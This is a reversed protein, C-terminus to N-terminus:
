ELYSTKLREVDKETLGLTNHVYNEFSGYDRDITEFAALLYAAAVQMFGHLVEALREGKLLRALFLEWRHANLYYQNSLLYDEVVIEKSVGLIRLLVAAAFGTRDKGAACHFLVPCGNAALLERFFHRIEPTFRTALEVNAQRMYQVPDVTVIYKELEDRSNHWVRTSADLIPIPIVRIDTDRPLRDPEREREHNARFDIIRDLLLASFYRLDADTLKHLSDSRYLFNWRVARGDLTRYGGLDRFNKAGSFPLRRRKSKEVKYVTLEDFYLQDFM